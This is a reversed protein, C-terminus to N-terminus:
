IYMDNGFMRKIDVNVELFEDGGVTYDYMAQSSVHKRQITETQYNRYTSSQPHIVTGVFFVTGLRYKHPFNPLDTDTQFMTEEMPPSHLTPDCWPVLQFPHTSLYSTAQGVLHLHKANSGGFMFDMKDKRSDPYYTPIQKVKKWIFYLRTGTNVPGWINKVRALGENIINLTKESSEDKNQGIDMSFASLVGSAGGGKYQESNCVGFFAFDNILRRHSQYLKERDAKNFTQWRPPYVQKLAMSYNFAALQYGGHRGFNRGQGDLLPFYNHFFTRTERTATSEIKAIIIDYTGPAECGHDTVIWIEPTVVEGNSMFGSTTNLEDEDVLSEDSTNFGYGDMTVTVREGRADSIDAWGLTRNNASIIRASQSSYANLARSFPDGQGAGDPIALIERFKGNGGALFDNLTNTPGGLINPMQREKHRKAISAYKDRRAGPLGSSRSNGQVQGEDLGSSKYSSFVDNPISFKAGPLPDRPRSHYGKTDINSTFQLFGEATLTAM